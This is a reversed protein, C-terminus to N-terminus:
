LWPSGPSMARGDGPTGEHDLRSEIGGPCREECRTLGCPSRRGVRRAVRRPARPSFSSAQDAPVIVGTEDLGPGVSRGIAAPGPGSFRGTSGPRSGSTGACFVEPPPLVQLWTTSTVDAGYYWSLHRVARRHRPAPSGSGTLWRPRCHDGRTVRRRSTGVARSRHDPRRRTRGSRRGRARAHRVVGHAWHHVGLSDPRQPAPRRRGGPERVDRFLRTRQDPVHSTRPPRRPDQCRGHRM